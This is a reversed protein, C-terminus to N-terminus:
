HSAQDLKSARNADGTRRQNCREEQDGGCFERKNTSDFTKSKKLAIGFLGDMEIGTM